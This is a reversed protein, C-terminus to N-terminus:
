GDVVVVMVVVAVTGGEAGGGVGWSMDVRIGARGAQVGGLGKGARAGRWRGGSARTSKVEPAGDSGERTRCSGCAVWWSSLPNARSWKDSAEDVTVPAAASSARRRVCVELVGSTADVLDRWRSATSRFSCGQLQEVGGRAPSQFDAAVIGKPQLSEASTPPTSTAPPRKYDEM